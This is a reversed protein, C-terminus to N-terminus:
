RTAAFAQVIGTGIRVRATARAAAAAVQFGSHWYEGSWVSDLGAAEAQAALQGTESLRMSDGLIDLGLRMGPLQRIPWTCSEPGYGRM